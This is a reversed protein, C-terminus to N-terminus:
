KLFKELNNNWYDEIFGWKYKDYVDITDIPFTDILVLNDDSLIRSVIISRLEEGSICGLGYINGIRYTKFDKIYFLDSVWNWDACGAKHYSYYFNPNSKIQKAEPFWEFNEVKTYNLVNEDFLYLETIINNGLFSFTIDLYDDSNFKLVEIGGAMDFFTTTDKGNRIIQAFSNSDSEGSIITFPIEKIVFTTDWLIEQGKVTLTLFLLMILLLKKM